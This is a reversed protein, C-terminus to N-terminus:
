STSRRLAANFTTTAFQSVGGGIDTAFEGDQIVGGEVFGKEATRRGVTDNVSFTTGPPHADACSTPSAISTPSAVRLVQPQDHVASSRRASVQRREINIDKLTKFKICYGTVSIGGLKVM